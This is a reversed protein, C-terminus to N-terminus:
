FYWRGGAAPVISVACLAGLVASGTSSCYGNYGLGLAPEVFVEAPQDKFQLTV